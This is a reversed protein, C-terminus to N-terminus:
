PTTVECKFLNSTMYNSYYNYNCVLVFLGFILRLGDYLGGVNGIWDLTTYVERSFKFLNRNMEYCITFHVDNYEYEYPRTQQIVINFANFM